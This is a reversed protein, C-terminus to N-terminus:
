KLTIYLTILTYTANMIITKKKECYLTHLNQYM